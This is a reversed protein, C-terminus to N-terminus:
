GIIREGGTFITHGDARALAILTINAEEAKRIAMATPASIAVLISVGAFAAKEVMEYSCRSTVVLFAKSPDAGARAAAGIVKDLANHRGVDERVHLLAGDTNAWGAAHMARTAEGYHQAPELDALARQIAAHTIRLGSAVRPLIRAADRLHQVGCLGCSSRGELTRVRAAKAADRAVRELFIDAAIGEPVASVRVDAIENARAIGESISFGIALDEIDAPTGMLVVHPHSDYSLGIAAEDPVVRDIARAGSDLRWQAGPRTEVIRPRDAM